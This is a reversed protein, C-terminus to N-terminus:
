AVELRVRDTGRSAELDAELEGSSAKTRKRRRKPVSLADPRQLRHNLDQILEDDRGVAVSERYRGKYVGFELVLFRLKLVTQVLFANAQTQKRPTHPSSNGKRSTHQTADPPIVFAANM